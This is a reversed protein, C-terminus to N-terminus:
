RDFSIWAVAEEGPDPRDQPARRESRRFGARGGPPVRRSNVSRSGGAFNPPKVPPSREPGTVCEKRTVAEEGM